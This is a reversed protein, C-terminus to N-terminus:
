KQRYEPAPRLRMCFCVAWVGMFLINFPVPRRGKEQAVCAKGSGRTIHWWRAIYLIAYQEFVDSCPLITYVVISYHIIDYSRQAHGMTTERGQTQDQQPFLHLGRPWQCADVGSWCSIEHPRKSNCEKRYTKTHASARQANTEKRM